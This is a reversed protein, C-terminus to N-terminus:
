YSWIMNHLFLDFVLVSLFQFRSGSLPDIQGWGVVVDGFIFILRHFSFFCVFVFVVVFYEIVLIIM